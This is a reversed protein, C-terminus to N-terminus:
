WFGWFELYVWKGKYDSLKVNPKVGRAATIEWEPMPKGKLKAVATAKLDLTGLDHEARDAKLTVTHKLEQVDTGYSRLSYTGAPLVFEFEASQGMHQAFPARLGEISVMTNAWAPKSKLETCELKGKLRVTPGVRATIERDARTVGVVAGLKRDESLVLVPRKENWDDIQVVAKGSEDTIAAKDATMGAGGSWFTAAVAKPVPKNDADVVRITVSFTAAFVTSVGTGLWLAIFGWRSLM